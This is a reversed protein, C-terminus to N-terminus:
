ECNNAHKVKTLISDFDHIMFLSRYKNRPLHWTYRSLNKDCFTKLFCAAFISVSVTQAM